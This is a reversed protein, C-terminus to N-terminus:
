SPPGPPKPPAYTATVHALLREEEDAAFLRTETYVLRRGQNVVRAEAVVDGAAPRLFTGTLTVASTEELRGVVSLVAGYAAFSALALLAPGGLTGGPRVHRPHFPLRVRCRGAALDEVSLGMDAAWPIARRVIEALEAESIKNM